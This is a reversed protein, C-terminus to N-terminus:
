FARMVLPRRRTFPRSVVLFTRILMSCGNYRWPERRMLCHSAWSTDTNASAVRRCLFPLLTRRGFIDHPRDGDKTGTM